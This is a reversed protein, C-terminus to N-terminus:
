VEIKTWHGARFRLAALISRTTMDLAMGIWAGPLGMNMKIALFYAVVVRVGWIGALTIYLTWKTDGAGRLGGSLIFNGILFPQAVAIIRLAGTALDTVTQDDTYLIAVYKGFFFYVVGILAAISVGIKLAEWGTRMARKPKRAGLSQGVLSTTAIQFAQGPTFSLGEVNLAVQHAAYVVTGFSSVIRAFVMQGSRMVLQEIAAPLGVKFIRRMIEPDPRFSDHVSIKIAARDLLIKRIILICAVGRSITTAVAAGSVGMEPLGFHGYILLYNLVINVLNAVMNVSMPTRTDGAGRLSANLSITVGQFLLGAAVIRLYESGPGIVDAEAGMWSIISRSYMYGLVSLLLGIAAAITLAQRAAASAEEPRKAGTARAVLATAGVNLAMFMSMAVFMPQNSLGVSTIAWPGLRGVMIMDAMSVLTMLIMEALAPMALTLIRNRILSVEEPAIVEEEATGDYPVPASLALEGSSEEPSGGWHDVDSTDTDTELVTGPETDPGNSESYDRLNGM